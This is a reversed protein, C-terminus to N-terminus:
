AGPLCASRWSPFTEPANARPSKTWLISSAAPGPHSPSLKVWSTAFAWGYTACSRPLEASRGRTLRSSSRAAARATWRPLWPALLDRGRVNTRCRCSYPDSTAAPGGAAVSAERDVAFPPAPAPWVAPRAEVDMRELVGSRAAARTALDRASSLLRLLMEAGPRSGLGSLEDVISLRLEPEVAELSEFAQWCEQPDSELQDVIENLWSKEAPPVRDIPLDMDLEPPNDRDPAPSDM